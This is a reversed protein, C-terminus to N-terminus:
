GILRFLTLDERGALRVQAPVAAMVRRAPDGGADLAVRAGAGLDDPARRADGSGRREAPARPARAEPLVRRACPGPVGRAPRLLWRHQAAGGAQPPHGADDLDAGRRGGRPHGRRRPPRHLRRLARGYAGQARADVRRDGPADARPPRDGAVGARPAPDRRGRRRRGARRRRPGGHSRRECRRLHDGIGRRALLTALEAAAQAYRRIPAPARGRTSVSAACNPCPRLRSRPDRDVGRRAGGARPRRAAQAQRQAARRHHGRRRRHRVDHARQGHLDQRVDVERGM